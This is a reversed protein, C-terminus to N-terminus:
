GAQRRRAAFGIAAVGALMLAYTSPEPVASATDVVSILRGVGTLRVSTVSQDNAWYADGWDLRVCTTCNMSSSLMRLFYDPSEVDAYNALSGAFPGDWMLYLHNQFLSGDNGIWSVTNGVMWGEGSGRAIGTDAWATGGRSRYAGNWVEISTGVAGDLPNTTASPLAPVQSDTLDHTRWLAHYQTANMVEVPRKTRGDIYTHSSSTFTTDGPMAGFAFTISQTVPMNRLGLDTVQGGSPCSLSPTPCVAKESATFYGEFTLTIDAMAVQCLGAGLAVAMWQKKM